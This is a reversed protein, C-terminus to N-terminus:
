EQFCPFAEVEPGVVAEDVLVDEEFDDRDGAELFCGLEGYTSREELSALLLLNVLSSYLFCRSFLRHRWQLALSWLSSNQELFCVMTVGLQYLAEAVVLVRAAAESFDKSFYLAIGLVRCLSLATNFKGTYCHTGDSEVCESKGIRM